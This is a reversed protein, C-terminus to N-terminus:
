DDLYRSAMGHVAHAFNLWVKASASAKSALDDIAKMAACHGRQIDEVRRRLRRRQRKGLLHTAVLEQAVQRSSASSGIIVSLLKEEDVTQLQRKM